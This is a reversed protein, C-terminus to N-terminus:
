LTLSLFRALDALPLISLYACILLNPSRIALLRIPKSKAKYSLASANNHEHQKSCLLAVKCDLLKIDNALKSNYTLLCFKHSIREFKWM